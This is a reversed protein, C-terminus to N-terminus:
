KSSREFRLTGKGGYKIFHWQVAIRKNMATIVLLAIIKARSNVTSEDRTNKQVTM